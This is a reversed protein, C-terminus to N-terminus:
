LRMMQCKPRRSEWPGLFSSPFWLTARWQRLRSITCARAYVNLQGSSTVHHQEFHLPRSFIPSCFSYKTLKVMEALSSGFADPLSLPHHQIGANSSSGPIVSSQHITASRFLQCPSPKIRSRKSNEALLLLPADKQSGEQSFQDLLFM